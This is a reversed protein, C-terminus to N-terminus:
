PLVVLRYFRQLQGSIDDDVILTSEEAEVPSGLAIWEPDNLNNKYEVQYSRGPLVPFSLRVTDADVREASGEPLALVTLTADDSIVSGTLNTVQVSYTGAHDMQVSAYVLNSATQGILPDNDFIWQHSLPAAGQATVTFEVAEGLFVTRSQPHTIIALASASGQGATPVGAFWNTPENGYATALGRQLSLGGGDVAGSPWPAIDLYAVKDVLVQPVFGADPHPSQQVLDPKYLEITDGSNDLKGSYPGFMRVSGTIGYKTRFANSTTASSPNFSVVLLREGASATVNTPFTFDVANALRWTNASSATDFLPVASGTVNHLEIFENTSDDTYNTGALLDPPHYMIENIVMPGIRPYANTLGTGTRFQAVTSPNDVGFTRLSLATFDAGVTTQYRGISVGNEAAGFEVGIRYGTLNTNADAESLWVEDGHAANFTFPTVSGAGGNFQNEYFVKFGGAPVITGNTVRFRKLDDSSNSLFWGGINVNTGNPNFLELADELPLDTHILVENVVVSQLPLYNAKGPTPTTPFSVINAAGDPLRGQSVNDSQPGFAV